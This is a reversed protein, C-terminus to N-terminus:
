VTSAQAAWGTARQLVGLQDKSEHTIGRPTGIFPRDVESCILLVPMSDGYAEAVATLANFAGPGTTTICVGVRGSAMAYGEAMFGAGQEHRALIHRISPTHFLGDYLPITHEGPIGFVVEVGEAELCDVIAQGGTVRPM